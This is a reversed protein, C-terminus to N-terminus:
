GPFLHVFWQAVEINPLNQFLLGIRQIGINMMNQQYVGVVPNLGWEELVM